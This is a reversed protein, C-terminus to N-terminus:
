PKSMSLAHFLWVSIGEKTWVTVFWDRVFEDGCTGTLDAALLGSLTTRFVVAFPANGTIAEVQCYRWEAALTASFGM